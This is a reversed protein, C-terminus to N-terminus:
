RGLLRDYWAFYDQIEDQLQQRNTEVSLQNDTIAAFGATDLQATQIKSLARQAERIEGRILRAHAMMKKYRTSADKWKEVIVPPAYIAGIQEDGMLYARNARLLGVTYQADVTLSQTAADLYNEAAVLMDTLEQPQSFLGLTRDRAITPQVLESGSGLTAYNGQPIPSRLAAPLFQYICNGNPLDPRVLLFNANERAQKTLENELFNVIRSVVTTSKVNCRGTAPDRLSNFMAQIILASGSGGLLFDDGVFQKQVGHYEIKDTSMQSDSLMVAETISSFAVHCTM